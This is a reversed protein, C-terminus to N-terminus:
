PRASGSRMDDAFSQLAALNERTESASRGIRRKITERAAEEPTWGKLFVSERFYRLMQLTADSAGGYKDTQRIFFDFLLKPIEFSDLVDRRTYEYIVTQRWPDFKKTGWYDFEDLFIQTTPIVVRVGGAQQHLAWVAVTHNPTPYFLGLGRVGARGALFAFL